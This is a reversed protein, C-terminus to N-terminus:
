RERNLGFPCGGSLECRSCIAIRDFDAKYVRDSVADGRKLRARRCDTAGRAPLLDLRKGPHLGRTFAPSAGAFLFGM